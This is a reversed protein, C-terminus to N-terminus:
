RSSPSPSREQAALTKRRPCINGVPAPGSPPSVADGVEDQDYFLVYTPEADQASRLRIGDIRTKPVWRFFETVIQTPVYEIHPRSHPLLPATVAQAFDRFFQFVGYANRHKVDFISPLTLVGTLDLVTLSRQNRFTGIRAFSHTGHTAIERVATTAAASAYFMPIGEPSMRNAAAFHAPAPGLEKATRLTSTPNQILRGRFFKSGPPIDLLLDLDRNEVYPVLSWLFAASRQGPSAMIEGNADPMFIFRSESKVAAVFSEWEWRVVQVSNGHLSQIWEHDRAAESILEFLVEDVDSAFAGACVSSIVDGSDLNEPDFYGWDPLVQHPPEYLFEVADMVELLLSQIPFLLSPANYSSDKCLRCCAQIVVHKSLLATLSPDVIHSLCMNGEIKYYGRM